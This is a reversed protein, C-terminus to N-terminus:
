GDSGTALVAAPEPRHAGPEIREVHLEAADGGRFHDPRLTGIALVSETLDSAKEGMGPAFGSLTRGNELELELKLHGGKVQRALRVRAQVGLAPKPNKEGCPELRYFDRLVDRPDDDRFLPLPEARAAADPSPRVVTQRCAADFLEKLAPLRDIHAEFGAAAQHGGFRVLAESCASLADHLKFGAPGRVSGHGVDGRFGVVAVPRQYREALRGAVIGVVGPNWDRSGLVFAARSGPADGEIEEVAASLIEDQQARRDRCLQEVTAAMGAAREPSQEMILKLALDPAGLRGPANLRPALRFAIDESTFPASRRLKALEFLAAFGPRRTRGLESLGARVLARNDGDLPAVDAITGVAVLDLWRKLDLERGLERRVAAVLSLALGCSALGKFPFGCEHRHPNLFALAPLPHEPVLHHDIVVADIGREALTALSEHDSSGCDCTVVLGPAKELVRALAARGLGYGGDFRSALVPEAKGGLARVAETVIATATMGDCDYDGFVCVVEGHRIALALREAAVRRDAMEDPATLHSLRPALFRQTADDGTLGRRLLHEAFTVTCRLQHALAAAAPRPAGLRAPGECGPAQAPVTRAGVTSTSM